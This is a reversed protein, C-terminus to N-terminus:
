NNENGINENFQNNNNIIINNKRYDQNKINLNENNNATKTGVTNSETNKKNNSNVTNNTNKVETKIIYGENEGEIGFYKSILSVPILHGGDNETIKQCLPFEFKEGTANDNITKTKLPILDGNFFAIGKEPYISLISDKLFIDISSENKIVKGKLARTLDEINVSKVGNDDVYPITTTVIDAKIISASLFIIAFSVLVKIFFTKKNKM